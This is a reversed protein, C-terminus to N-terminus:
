KEAQRIAEEPSMMGMSVALLGNGYRNFMAVPIGFMDDIADEGPLADVCNCSVKYRIEGDNFDLEFNGISLGFNARHLYEAVQAMCDKDASLSVEGYSVIRHCLNPDSSTSRVLIRIDVSGIKTRKLNFGAKFMTRDEDYQYRWGNSEIFSRVYAIAQSMTTKAM